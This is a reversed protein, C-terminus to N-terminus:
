MSASRSYNPCLHNAILKKLAKSESHIFFYHRNEDLNNVKQFICTRLIFVEYNRQNFFDYVEGPSSDFKYLDEKDIKALITPQHHEIMNQAGKFLLLEAGQVTCKIFDVRSIRNESCFGDLTTMEILEQVLGKEGKPIPLEAFGPQDALTKQTLTANSLRYFKRKLTKFNHNGPEFCYVHGTKGALRSMFLTCKRYTAGAHFCSSGESIFQNLVHVETEPQTGSLRKIFNSFYSFPQSITRTFNKM